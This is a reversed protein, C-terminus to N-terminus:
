QRLLQNVAEVVNSQIDSWPAPEIPAGDEGTDLGTLLFSGRLRGQQDVLILNTSHIFLDNPSERKAEEKDLATLKLGEVALKVIERQDGTLFWWREPDAGFRRGYKALVEPTDFAPDTTLSVLKVRPDAPLADQLDRLRQTMRACPGPCRTFIIDALWVQGRLSDPTVSQGHQNTLAFFPVTGYVPLSPKQGSKTDHLGSHGAQRQIEQRVFALLIGTIALGLVAWVLSRQAPSLKM